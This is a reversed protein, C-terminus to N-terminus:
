RMASETLVTLHLNRCFAWYRVTDKAAMSRLLSLLKCPISALEICDYQPISVAHCSLHPVGAMGALSIYCVIYIASTAAFGLWSWLSSSQRYLILKVTM